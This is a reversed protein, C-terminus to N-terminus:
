KELAATMNSNIGENVLPTNIIFRNWDVIIELGKIGSDQFIDTSKHKTNPTIAPAPNKSVDM